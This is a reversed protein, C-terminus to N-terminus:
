TDIDQENWTSALYGVEALVAGYEIARDVSWEISGSMVPAYEKLLGELEHLLTRLAEAKTSTTLHRPHVTPAFTRVADNASFRAELSGSHKGIFVAETRRM